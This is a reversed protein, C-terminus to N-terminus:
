KKEHSNRPFTEETAVTALAGTRRRQALNKTTKRAAPKMQASSTGIPSRSIELVVCVHRSGARSKLRKPRRIATAPFSYRAPIAVCAGESSYTCSFPASRNWADTAISSVLSWGSLRAIKWSTASPTNSHCLGGTPRPCAGMSTSTGTFPYLVNNNRTSGPVSPSVPSWASQSFAFNMVEESFFGSANSECRQRKAHNDSRSAENTEGDSATTM